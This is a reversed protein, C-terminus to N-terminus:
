RGKAAVAKALLAIQGGHYAHHQALGLLMGAHSVGTGLSADGSTGVRQGLREAPFAEIARDLSAQAAGLAARTALWASEGEDVVAPWDGEAPLSPEGGALRREVERTWATVHLVIEWVSHASALPHAAATPADVDALLAALAPGHWAEGAYARRVVSRIVRDLPPPPSAPISTSTM